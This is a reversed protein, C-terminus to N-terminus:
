YVGCRPQGLQTSALVIEVRRNQRMQEENAANAYRPKANGIGIAVYRFCKAYHAGNSLKVLERLLSSAAASARKQSVEIEFQARESVAKRLARDAHGIIVAGKVPSYTMQSREIAIAAVQLIHRQNAALADPSTAYEPFGAITFDPQLAGNAAQAAVASPVFSTLHLM